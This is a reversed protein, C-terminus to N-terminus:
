QPTLFAKIQDVLANFQCDELIQLLTAWSAPQSGNGRLWHQFMAQCSMIVGDRGNDCEIQQITEGTPDFDLFTGLSKWDRAVTNIIEIKEGNQSRLVRLQALRPTSTMTMVNEEVGDTGNAPIM